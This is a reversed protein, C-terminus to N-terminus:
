KGNDQDKNNDKTKKTRTARATKKPPKVNKSPKPAARKKTKPSNAKEKGDSPVKKQTKQNRRPAQYKPLFTTQAIKM